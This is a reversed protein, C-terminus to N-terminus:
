EVFTNFTARSPGCGKTVDVYIQWWGRMHFLMGSVQFTNSGMKKVTPATNLGHGHEPMDGGVKIEFDEDTKGDKTAVEVTFTFLENSPPWEADEPFKYSVKCNGDESMQTKNYDKDPRSSQTQPGADSNTKETDPGGTCAVQSM